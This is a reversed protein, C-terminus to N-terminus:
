ALQNLLLRLAIGRHSISKKEDLALEAMTRHFSATWFIPDYGFGNAGLPRDIIWGPAEGASEIFTDKSPIYLALACIFKARSLANLQEALGEPRLPPQGTHSAALESLLKDMNAQDDAGEGAYRASYVGPAGDLAEVALGSDDALVPLNLAEGVVRAKKRANDAFTAGDEVIDPLAEYDYMSKVAFGLPAFAHAFEKVKGANKTAVVIIGDLEKLSIM